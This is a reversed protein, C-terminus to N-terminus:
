LPKTCHVYMHKLMPRVRYLDLCCHGLEITRRTLGQVQARNDSNSGDCSLHGSIAGMQIQMRFPLLSKKGKQYCRRTKCIINQYEVTM